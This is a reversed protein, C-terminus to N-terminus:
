SRLPEASGQPGKFQSTTFFSGTSQVVEDKSGKYVHVYVLPQFVFQLLEATLGRKGCSLNEM